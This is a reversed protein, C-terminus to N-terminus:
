KVKNNQISLKLISQTHLDWLMAYYDGVMNNFKDDHNLMFSYFFFYAQFSPLIFYRM